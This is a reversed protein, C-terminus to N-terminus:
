RPMDPCVYPVPALTYSHTVPGDVLDLELILEAENLEIVSANITAGDEDWSLETDSLMQWTSLRYTEWCSDQLLTGDSLFLVMSGPVSAEDTSVWIRETLSAGPIPAWTMGEQAIAPAALAAFVFLAPFCPRM